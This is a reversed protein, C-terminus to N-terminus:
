NVKSRRKLIYMLELSTTDEDVFGHADSLHLEDKNVYTFAFHLCEPSLTISDKCFLVVDYPMPGGCYVDTSYIAKLGNFQAYGSVFGTPAIKLERTLIRGADDELIFDGSLITSRTYQYLPNPYSHEQDFADLIREYAIDIVTISDRVICVDITRSAANWKLYLVSPDFYSYDTKARYYGSSDSLTLDITFFGQEYITDNEVVASGSVEPRIMHDHLVSYGIHLLGNKRENLNIRLAVPLHPDFARISNIASKTKLFTDHYQKAIWVGEM